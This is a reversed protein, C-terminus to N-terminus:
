KGSAPSKRIVGQAQQIEMQITELKELVEKVERIETLGEPEVVDEGGDKDEIVVATSETGCSINATQM